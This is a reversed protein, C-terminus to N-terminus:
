KGARWKSDYTTITSDFESWSHQFERYERAAELVKEADALQARLCALCAGCRPAITGDVGGCDRLEAVEAEAQGARAAHFACGENVHDIRAVLELQRREWWAERDDRYKTMHAVEAKLNVRERHALTASEEARVKDHKLLANAVEVGRLEGRLEAVETQAKALDARLDAVTVVLCGAAHADCPRGCVYCDTM